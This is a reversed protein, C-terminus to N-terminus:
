KVTIGAGNSIVGPSATNVTLIERELIEAKGDLTIKKVLNWTVKESRRNGSVHNKAIGEIGFEGAQMERGIGKASHTSYKVFIIREGPEGGESILVTQMTSVRVIFNKAIGACTKFVTERRM